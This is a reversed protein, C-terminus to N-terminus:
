IYVRGCVKIELAMHVENDKEHETIQPSLYNNTKNMVNNNKSHNLYLFLRPLMHWM